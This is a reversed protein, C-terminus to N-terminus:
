QADHGLFIYSWGWSSVFYGKRCSAYSGARRWITAPSRTSNQVAASPLVGAQDATDPSHCTRPPQRRVWRLFGGNLGHVQCLDASQVVGTMSVPPHWRCCLRGATGAYARWVVAGGWYRVNCRQRIPRCCLNSLVCERPPLDATSSQPGSLRHLCRQPPCARRACPAARSFARSRPHRTM